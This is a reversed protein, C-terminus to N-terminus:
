CPMLKSKQQGCHQPPIPPSFRTEPVPPLSLSVGRRSTAFREVVFTLRLSERCRSRLSCVLQNGKASLRTRFPWRSDTRECHEGRIGKVLDPNPPGILGELGKFFEDQQGFAMETATYDDVFKKNLQAGTPAAAEKLEKMKESIFKAIEPLANSHELLESM